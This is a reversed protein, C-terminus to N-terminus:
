RSEHFEFLDVLVSDEHDPHEAIGESNSTKPVPWVRYKVRGSTAKLGRIVYGISRVRHRYQALSELYGDIEQVLKMRKRATDEDGEPLKPFMGKFDAVANNLTAEDQPIKEPVKILDSVAKTVPPPLQLEIGAWKSELAVRQSRSVTNLDGLEPQFRYSLHLQRTPLVKVGKLLEISQIFGNSISELNWKHFDSPGLATSKEGEQHTLEIQEIVLDSPAIESLLEKHEEPFRVHLSHDEFQVAGAEGAAPGFVVFVRTDKESDHLLLAGYQVMLAQNGSVTKPFVEIKPSKVDVKSLDFDFITTPFGGKRAVLHLHGAKMTQGALNYLDTQSQSRPVYLSGKSALDIALQGGGPLLVHIPEKRGVLPTRRDLVVRKVAKPSPQGSTKPTMPANAITSPEVPAASAQPPPTTTNSPPPSAPAPSNSPSTDKPSNDPPTTDTTKAPQVSDTSADPLTSSQDSNSAVPANEPAPLPPPSRRLWLVAGVATGAIALLALIALGYKALTSGTKPKSRPPLSPPEPGELPASAALVAPPPPM